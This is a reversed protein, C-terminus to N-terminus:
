FGLISLSSVSSTDGSVFSKMCVKNISSTNSNSFWLNIELRRLRGFTCLSINCGVTTMIIVMKYHRIQNCISFVRFNQSITSLQQFDFDPRTISLNNITTENCHRLASKTISEIYRVRFPCERM